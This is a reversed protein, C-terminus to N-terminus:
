MWDASRLTFKFRDLRDPGKILVLMLLYKLFNQYSQALQLVSNLGSLPLTHTDFCDTIVDMSVALM